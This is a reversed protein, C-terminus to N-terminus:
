ADNRGKEIFDALGWLMVAPVSTIRDCEEGLERLLAIAGLQAVTVATGCVEREEDRSSINETLAEKDWATLVAEVLRAALQEMDTM